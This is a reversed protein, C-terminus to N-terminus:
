VAEKNKGTPHSLDLCAPWCPDCYADPQPPKKKYRFYKQLSAQQQHRWTKQKEHLALAGINGIEERFTNAIVWGVRGSAKVDEVADHAGDHSVGYHRCLDVLKRKGGRWPDVQKDLVYVDIIPAPEGGCLEWLTPLNYRLCEWHLLSFDYALNMGLIPIKAQACEALKTTLRRLADAPPNGTRQVDEDTIGHIKTAGPPIPIGPNVLEANALVRGDPIMDVAAWQIVRDERVDVGTSETDFGCLIDKYWPTV